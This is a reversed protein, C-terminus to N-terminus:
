RMRPLQAVGALTYGGVQSARMRRPPPTTRRGWRKKKSKASIRDRSHGKEIRRRGAGWPRLEVDPAHKRAYSLVDHYPIGLLIGVAGAEYDTPITDIKALTHAVSRIKSVCLDAPGSSLRKESFFTWYGAKYLGIVFDDVQRLFEEHTLKAPDWHLESMVAPKKDRELAVYDAQVEEVDENFIVAHKQVLVKLSSM